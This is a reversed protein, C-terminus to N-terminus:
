AYFVAGAIALGGVAGLVGGLIPGLAPGKSPADNSDQRRVITSAYMPFSAMAPGDRFACDRQEASSGTQTTDPWKGLPTM